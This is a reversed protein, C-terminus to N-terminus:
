FLEFQFKLAAVRADLREVVLYYFCCDFRSYDGVADGPIPGGEASVM